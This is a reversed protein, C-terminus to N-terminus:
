GIMMLTKPPKKPKGATLLCVAQSRAAVPWASNHRMSVTTIAVTRTLRAGGNTIDFCNHNHPSPNVDIKCQTTITPLPIFM